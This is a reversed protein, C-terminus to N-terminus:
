KRKSKLREILDRQKEENLYYKIEKELSDNIKIESFSDETRIQKNKDLKNNTIDNMGFIPSTLISNPLLEELYIKDDVRELYTGNEVNRKVVCIVSNKPAGLLPIPSHTSVIFQVNPFAETLQQVFHKQFNPHLHIDIEDIFVVGKLNSLDEVKPQQRSLRILMDSMMAMISLYGSSLKEIGVPKHLEGDDDIEYFKTKPQGKKSETGFEVKGVNPLISEIFEKIYFSRKAFDQHNPSDYWEKFQSELDLLFGDNEFLSKLNGTKNNAQKLQTKSLGGYITNLRFPGYAAFGVTYPKRKRININDVRKIHLANSQDSNTFILCEFKKGTVFESPKIIRHAITSALAKIISSKGVGNEGTLFIWQTNKPFGNLYTHKVPGYNSITFGHIRSANIQSVENNYKELIGRHHIIKEVDKNFTDIPILSIGAERYESKMDGIEDDILPWYYNLFYYIAEKLSKNKSEIKHSYSFNNSKFEDYSLKIGFSKIIYGHIFKAKLLSDNAHFQMFCKEDKNIIISINPVKTKWNDGQWFGVALYDTNGLFWYGETLKNARNTKRPRFRFEKNEISYEYLIDFLKNHLDTIEM